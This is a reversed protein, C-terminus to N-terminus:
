VLKAKLHGALEAIKVREQKMTDRDRVTVTDDELTDFDVTICFPTGIEDQRRYRKGVNGNDDFTVNFVPQLLKFVEKAKGVVNDKNSVLPFIAAKFPALVRPLKLVARTDGNEMKEETYAEVIASLVARDLGFTPELVHPIFKENTYPDTYSLDQGSFKQHQTLDFNTRYAIACLEKMGFPFQYEIDITRKSYHAREGDPIEHYYIKNKDLGLVDLWKAIEAVWSEFLKEWDNPNIFYEFEMLDFERVRFIFDGPTIENRFVRGSQALGFPLKPRMTDMVNKFNVFMGGATEPRLYIQNATEEVPGIFTKFMMNFM